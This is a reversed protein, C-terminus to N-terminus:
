EKLTKAPVSVPTKQYRKLWARMLNIENQQDTIIQQALHRLEADTSYILLAKAMDVAGQHHPIMMTVFDHNADGNMPAQTMGDDMVAMSDNMLEAFPKASSAVFRPPTGQVASGHHHMSSDASAAVMWGSALLGAFFRGYKKLQYTASKKM